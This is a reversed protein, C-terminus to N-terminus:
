CPVTPFRKCFHRCSPLEHRKSRGNIPTDTRTTPKWPIEIVTLIKPRYLKSLLINGMRGVETDATKDSTKEWGDGPGSASKSGSFGVDQRITTEMGGLRGGVFDEHRSIHRAPTATFVMHTSCPKVPWPIKRPLDKSM